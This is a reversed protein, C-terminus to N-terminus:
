TFIRVSILPPLLCNEIDIINRGVFWFLMTLLHVFFSCIFSIVLMFCFAGVYWQVHIQYYYILEFGDQQKYVNFAAWCNMRTWLISKICMYNYVSCNMCYKTDCKDYYWTLQKYSQDDAALPAIQWMYWTLCVCCCWYVVLICSYEIGLAICM